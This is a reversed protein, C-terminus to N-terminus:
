AVRFKEMAKPDLELGLGPGPPPVLQGEVIAPPNAFLPYHWPM